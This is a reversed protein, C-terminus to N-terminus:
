TRTICKAEFGKRRSHRAWHALGEQLRDWRLVQMAGAGTFTIPPGVMAAIRSAIEAHKAILGSLIHSRPDAVSMIQQRGPIVFGVRRQLFQELGDGLSRAQAPALRKRPHLRAPYMSGPAM